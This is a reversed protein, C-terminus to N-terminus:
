RAFLATKAATLCVQPTENMRMRVEDLYDDRKEHVKALVDVAQGLLIYLNRDSVGIAFAVSKLALARESDGVIEHGEPHEAM